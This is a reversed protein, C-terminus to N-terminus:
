LKAKNATPTGRKAEQTKKAGELAEKRAQKLFEAGREGVMIAPVNTNGSPLTPMISADIVRLRSVGIVRLQPDVVATPDDVSGMKCTGVPHYLTNVQHRRVSHFFSAFLILAARRLLLLRAIRM